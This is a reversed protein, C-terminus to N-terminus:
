RPAPSGGRASIVRPQYSGAECIPRRLVATTCRNQLGFTPLEIREAPVLLVIKWVSKSIAGLIAGIARIRVGTPLRNWRDMSIVCFFGASIEAPKKISSRFVGNARWCRFSDFRCRGFRHSHGPSHRECNSAGMLCQRGARRNRWATKLFEPPRCIIPGPSNVFIDSEAVGVPTAFGTAAGLRAM